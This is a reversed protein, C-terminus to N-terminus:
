HNKLTVPLFIKRSDEAPTVAWSYILIHNHEVTFHPHFSSNETVDFGALDMMDIVLSGSEGVEGLEQEGFFEVDLFVLNVTLDPPAEVSITIVDTEVNAEGVVPYITLTDTMGHGFDALIENDASVTGTIFSDGSHFDGNMTTTVIVSAIIEGAETQMTLIIPSTPPANHGWVYREGDSAPGYHVLMHPWDQTNIVKHGGPEFYSVAVTQGAGIDWGLLNFDCDYLGLAPDIQFPLGPGNDVGWIECSGDLTESSTPPKLYGPVGITGTIADAPYDVSIGVVGVQVNSTYGNDLATLVWDGPQIDPREGSWGGRDTSFGSRDWDQIFETTLEASGKVTSKDSETVTIWVTHGPEYVGEVWDHGYNINLTLDPSRWYRHFVVEAYDVETAYRVVGEAGPPIDIFAVDIVGNGDTQSSITPGGYMDVEIWEGDLHDIQGWVQDTISSAEADFPDPITIAVPQLGAGASVTIMDGPELLGANDVEWCGSCDPEAFTFYSAIPTTVTVPRGSVGDGWLHSVGNPNLWMEVSKVEGGSFMIDEFSNDGPNTDGYPLSIEVYNTYWRLPTGPELLDLDFNIVGVEGPLIESFNFLWRGIGTDDVIEGTRQDDFHVEPWGATEVGFPITDTIKVGAETQDGINAFRITYALQGDGQWHSWKKVQLNPGAPQITFVSCAENDAPTTELGEVEIVACNALEAGATAAEDIKTRIHFSHQENVGLVPMDWIVQNGLITPDPIPENEWPTDGGWAGSVYVLGPPLTDTIRVTSEINGKNRYGLWFNVYGGAVLMAEGLEKDIALDYRTPSVFASEDVWWNNEPNIDGGIDLDVLNVLKTPISLSADLSARINIMECRDGPLGPAYLVLRENSSSVESWFHMEPESEQWDLLSVGAPLTDTMTVPGAAAGRQNCWEIRYDFEQGPHPDNPEAWKSVSLDVEDEWVDVQQSCSMDNGPNWDGPTSSGIMACNQDLGGTGTLTGHDINLTVFFNASQDPAITGLEWAIVGDPGVTVPFGSTDDAYTTNAPLTDTILVNEAPGSGDNLYSLGYVAIGDPRAYGGTHWKWLGLEPAPLGWSYILQHGHHVNMHAHLSAGHAVNIGHDSMLNSVIEGSDGFEGLNAWSCTDEPTCVELDITFTPPVSPATVTIIDTDSDALGSMPYITLTDKNVGDFDAYIINNAGLTGEPLTSGTDFNGDLDTIRSTGAVFGGLETTVTLVVSANPSNYSGWIHRNGNSWPGINAALFPWEVMNIVQDGDDEYYGIAVMDGIQLDWGVSSFDCTFQGGYPDVTTEIQDSGPEAWVQCYVTTPNSLWPATLTGTVLDSVPHPIGKIAGIPNVEASVGLTRAYVIDGPQLDPCTGSFWDDCATFFYGSTDAELVAIEKVSGISDTVTVAITEEIDTNGAAWDHGYNVQLELFALPAAAAHKRPSPVSLITRNTPSRLTNALIHDAPENAQGAAALVISVLGFSALIVFVLFPLRRILM